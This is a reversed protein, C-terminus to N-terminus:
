MEQGHKQFITAVQQRLPDGLNQVTTLDLVEAFSTGGALGAAVTVLSDPPRITTFPAGAGAAGLTWNPLSSVPPFPLKLPQPREVPVAPPATEPPAAQSNSPKAEAVPPFLSTAIVSDAFSADAM